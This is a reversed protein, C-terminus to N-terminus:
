SNNSIIWNLEEERGLFYSEIFNWREEDTMKITFFQKLLNESDAHKKRIKTLINNKYDSKALRKIKEPDNIRLFVEANEGGKLDYSALELIEMLQLLPMLNIPADNTYHVYTFYKMDSAPNCQALSRMINSKVISFNGVILYEYENGKELKRKQLIRFSNNNKRENVNITFVNLIMSTKASDISFEGLLSNLDNHFIKEAFTRNSRKYQLLIQMVSDLIKEVIVKVKEYDQNYTVNVRVMSTLHFGNKDKLFDPSFFKYKFAGFTLESYENEWLKGIQLSYVVGVSRIQMLSGDTNKVYRDPIKGIRKSYRGFKADFESILSEPVNVFINTLMNKPRVILVPFGYKEKLDKSLMLLGNKVKSEIESEKFLHSFSDPSVLLNRSNKTEFIDSIKKLMAKLQYQRMESMGHLAKVYKLDGQFFDMHAIGFMNEDRAARGIEQVYDSLNGTPAFHVIHKIDKRDIGMGFAKTCILGLIKGDRYESETIKKAQNQLKSYYKRIVIKENKSFDNYIADVQTTYPCYVLSKENKNVYDRLKELVLRKKITELKEKYDDKNRCVIDFKINERKVSGLHLIPNDLDLEKITDNVVDDNGTYVATATLCLVPFKEGNKKIAKLFDGLFWYDSRFDRGWSTVTHAEDIVILGVRREGLLAKIGSSLLLEPALYVISKKGNRIEEYRKQREEFSISSNICTAININNEKELKSVQDNMLAILPSIIITVLKYRESIYLSPLQFLLSKGAGTPATIFVDRFDEGNNAKECQDIIESILSGQSCIVTEKSDLPNKYFKINRFEADKGWYKKLYTLFTKDEYKLNPAKSDIKELSYKIHLNVLAKQLSKIEDANKFFDAKYSVFNNTNEDAVISLRYLYDKETGILVEEGTCDSYTVLPVDDFLDIVPLKLDKHINIPVILSKERNLILADSYYRLLIDTENNEENKESQMYEFLSLAQKQTLCNPVANNFLSNNVIVIDGDFIAKIDKVVSLIAIIEEYIGLLSNNSLMLNKCLEKKCEEIKELNLYNNEIISPKNLISCKHNILYKIQNFSFGRFVYFTKKSKGILKNVQKEFFDQFLLKNKM